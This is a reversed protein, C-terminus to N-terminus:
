LEGKVYFLLIDELSVDELLFDPYQQRTKGKNSVLLDCNVSSSRYNVYDKPNINEFDSKGCKLIGYNELLRDKEESFIIEGNNILVIYDAIQELDNIMHSSFFITRNEDQIFELFLDVADRRNGIDLGTTPEDMILLAPDQAIAIIIALIMKMGKSFEGTKQELPINFRKITSSFYNNNWRKYIKSFMFNLESPTMNEPFLYEDFVVATNERIYTENKQYDTGFLRIEGSDIKILNLIANILTTKGAGNAGIFGVIRGKPIEFTCNKLRFNRYKKELGKIEVTNTYDFTL